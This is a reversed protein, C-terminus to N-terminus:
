APKPDRLVQGSRHIVCVIAQQQPNAKEALLFPVIPPFVKSAIHHTFWSFM